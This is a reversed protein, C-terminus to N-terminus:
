PAFKRSQVVRFRYYNDINLKAPDTETAFDPLRPDNPDVYREILTSGRSESLVLDRGEVWQDVPTSPVKKLV